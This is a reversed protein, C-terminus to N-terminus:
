WAGGPETLSRGLEFELKQLAWKAEAHTSDLLLVRQFAAAAADNQRLGLRARGLAMWAEPNNPEQESWEGALRSLPRWNEKAGLDCAALFYGSEKGPTEWFTDGGAVAEVKHDALHRLWGVPLAFHFNGGTKAKFTLIGVLRGRRDFLGGGSAGRDFAASTQIVKGGDCECTHLGIIKGPSVAFKGGPYGVASVALGVRTQGLDIMAIPEAQLGPITLFCLDRYADRLDARALRIKGAQEVEIRTADRIVHCNTVMRDGALSVASGLERMGDGRTVVIKAVRSAWEAEGAWAGAACAALGQLLALLVAIRNFGRSM